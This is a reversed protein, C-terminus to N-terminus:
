VLIHAGYNQIVTQQDPKNRAIYNDCIVTMCLIIAYSRQCQVQQRVIYKVTNIRNLVAECVCRERRM